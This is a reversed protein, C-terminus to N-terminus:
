RWGGRRAKRAGSEVGKLRGKENGESTGDPLRSGQTYIRALGEEVLVERLWKKEGGVEVEVFAYIRPGEYVEEGKSYVTFSKAGLLDRARKKAEQGLETTERQSLNGFYKAQYRLREANTDGGRYEKYASEPADVFYLRFEQVGRGPVKVHFSDGDNNRHEVLKCREMREYGGVVEFDGEGQLQEVGQEVEEQNDIMWLVGVAMLTVVLVWTPSKKTRAM